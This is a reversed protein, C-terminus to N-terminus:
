SIFSVPYDQHKKITKGWKLVYDVFLSKPNKIRRASTNVIIEPDFILTGYKGIHISLDLDEHVEEDNLCVENKVEQWAKKTIAMNPGYLVPHRFLAENLSFLAQTIKPSAGKGYRSPGSVAVVKPDEFHALFKDAWDPPVETDADTRAIIDGRAENFGRNRAETMGQKKEHIVKVGYSKAIAATSDTSNNDVVIVELPKQKLKQISELCKALYKQENYAPIVISFQLKNKM